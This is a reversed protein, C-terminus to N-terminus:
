IYWKKQTQNNCQALIALPTFALQCLLQSNRTETLRCCGTAGFSICPSVVFHSDSTGASYRIVNTIASPGWIGMGNINHYRKQHLLAALHFWQLLSFPPTIFTCSMSLLCVGSLSNCSNPWKTEVLVPVLRNYNDTGSWFAGKWGGFFWTSAHYWIRGYGIFLNM